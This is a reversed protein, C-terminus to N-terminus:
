DLSLTFILPRTAAPAAAAGANNPVAAPAIVPPLAPATAPANFPVNFPAPSIVAPAKNPVNPNLILGGSVLISETIDKYM